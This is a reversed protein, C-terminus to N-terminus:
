KLKGEKEFLPIIVQSILKNQRNLKFMLLKGKRNVELIGKEELEKVLRSVAGKDARIEKAISALNFQWEDSKSLFRILKIKSRSGLISELPQKKYM